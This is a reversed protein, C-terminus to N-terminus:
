HLMSFRYFCTLFVLEQEVLPGAYIGIVHAHIAQLVQLICVLDDCSPAIKLSGPQYFFFSSSCLMVIAKEISRLSERNSKFLQRMEELESISKSSSSSPIRKIANFSGAHDSANRTMCYVCSNCYFLHLPGTPPHTILGFALKLEHLPQV